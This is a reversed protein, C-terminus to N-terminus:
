RKSAEEMERQMDRERSLRLAKQMLPSKNAWESPVGDGYVVGSGAYSVANVAPVQLAVQPTVIYEKAVWAAYVQAMLRDKDLGQDKPYQYGTTQKLTEPLYPYTIWRENVFKRYNALAQAKIPSLQAQNGGTFAVPVFWVSLHAAQFGFEIGIASTADFGIICNFMKIAIECFDMIVSIPRGKQFVKEVVCRAAPRPENPDFGANLDWLTFCSEDGGESTAIDVGGVYLHGIQYKGDLKEMVYPDASMAVKDYVAEVRENIFYSDPPAVWQGGLVQDAIREDLSDRVKQVQSPILFVNDKIAGLYSNWDKHGREGRRFYMLLDKSTSLPTSGLLIKQNPTRVARALFVQDVIHQLHIELRAEDYVIFNLRWGEINAAKNEGSEFHILAGNHSWRYAEHTAETRFPILWPGLRFRHAKREPCNFGQECPAAHDCWVQVEHEGRRLQEVDSHTILAQQMWPALVAVKYQGWGKPAWKKAFSAWLVLLAYLLTKGWGNAAALVCFDKETLMDAVTIQGAHARVGCMFNCFYVFDKAARKCHAIWAQEKANLVRIRMDFETVPEEEVDKILRTARLQTQYERLANAQPKSTM